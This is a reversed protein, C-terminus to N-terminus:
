MVIGFIWIPADKHIKPVAEYHHRIPITCKKSDLKSYVTRINQNITLLNRQTKEDIGLINYM